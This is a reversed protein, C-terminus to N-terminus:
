KDEKGEACEREMNPMVINIKDNFKIKESTRPKAPIERKMLKHYLKIYDKM